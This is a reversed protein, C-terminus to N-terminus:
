VVFSLFFNTITLISNIAISIIILKNYKNTDINETTIDSNNIIYPLETWTHIGDGIKMNVIDDSIYEIGAEGDLLVIDNAEWNVTSDRKMQTKIFNQKTFALFLKAFDGKDITLYKLDKWKLRGDGIKMKTIGTSCNEIGLEGKLLVPNAKNWNKTTDSKLIIRTIPEKM